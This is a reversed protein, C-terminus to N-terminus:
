VKTYDARSCELPLVIRFTAGIGSPNNFGEITGGHAEVITRSLRLGVGFGEAKTTFFPSFLRGMTELAIGTGSDCVCLEIGPGTTERTTVGIVRREPPCFESAELANRLLNIVVQSLQVSDASLRPLGAALDTKLEIRHREAEGRVGNIADLVMANIDIPKRIPQGPNALARLHVVSDRVRTIDAAIDHLIELGGCEKIGCANLRALAAAVNVGIACLPQGIQHIIGASIESVMALRLAQDLEANQALLKGEAEKEASLDRITTVRKEVGQWTMMRGHAELPVRTGDKRLGTFGYTVENAAAIRSAVLDRSEPAVFDAIPRGIMGALDSRHIAAFQPNGDLIVGDKSVVVGEFSAEVLLRFRAESEFLEATREAVRCELSRNWDRLTQENRKRGTIDRIIAWMALPKGSSDRILSVRLEVPFVTGDARVYEKEYLDTFDRAMLQEAILRDELEHWKSPTLDRYTLKRLEEDPYGLMKQFEHNWDTLNGRMDVEAFGDMMSQYLSRYKIEIADHDAQTRRLEENQAQLEVHYVQLDLLMRHLEASTLSEIDLGAPFHAERPTAGADEGGKATQTSTHDRPKM